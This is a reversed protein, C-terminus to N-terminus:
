NKINNGECDLVVICDASSRYQELAALAICSSGGLGTERVIREVESTSVTVAKNVIKRGVDVAYAEPTNVAIGDSVCSVVSLDNEQIKTSNLTRVFADYEKTQSIVIESQRLKSLCLGIGIPGGAGVTTYLAITKDRPIEEDITFAISGYGTM